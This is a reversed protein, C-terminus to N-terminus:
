YHLRGGVGLNTLRNFVFKMETDAPMDEVPDEYRFTGRGQYIANPFYQFSVPKKCPSTEIGETVKATSCAGPRFSDMDFWGRLNYLVIEGAAADKWHIVGDMGVDNEEFFRELKEGWQDPINDFAWKDHRDAQKATLNKKKRTM